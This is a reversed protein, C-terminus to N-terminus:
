LLGPVVAGLIQPVFLLATSGPVASSSSGSPDRTERTLAPDMGPVSLM